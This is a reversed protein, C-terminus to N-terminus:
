LSLSMVDCNVRILKAVCCTNDMVSVLRWLGSMGQGRGKLLCAPRVGDMRHDMKILGLRTSCIYIEEEEKMGLRMEAKETVGLLRRVQSTFREQMIAPFAAKSLGNLFDTHSFAPLHAPGSAPLPDDGPPLPAPECFPAFPALLASTLASFHRRLEQSNATALRAARAPTEHPGAVLLRDLYCLL